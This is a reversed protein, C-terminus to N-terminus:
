TELHTFNRLTRSQVICGLLFHATKNGVEVRLGAEDDGFQKILRDGTSKAWLAGKAPMAMM